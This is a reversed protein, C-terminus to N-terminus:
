GEQFCREAGPHRPIPLERRANERTWGAGGPSGGNVEEIHDLITRTITYVVSEPVDQHTVLLCSIGLSPVEEAVNELQEAPLLCAYWYPHSRVVADATPGDVPLLRIRMTRSLDVLASGPGRALYFIADIEGSKLGEVANSISLYQPVYDGEGCGAATLLARSIVASEGGAAGMAIRRGKLDALSRVEAAAPVLIWLDLSGAGCVARLKPHPTQFPGTGRFAHLAIDSQTLGLIAKGDATLEVNEIGGGTPEAEIPIGGYRRLVECLGAGISYFTGGISGAGFNDYVVSMQLPSEALSLHAELHALAQPLDGAELADVLSAHQEAIRRGNRLLPGQGEELSLLLRQIIDTIAALVRNECLRALRRYFLLYEERLEEASEREAAEGMRQVSERLHPFSRGRLSVSSLLPPLLLRRTSLFDRKYWLKAILRPEIRHFYGSIDPQSVVTGSGHSIRIVGLVSLVELGERLSPISINLEKALSAHSPLRDGVRLDMALIKRQIAEAVEESFRKKM